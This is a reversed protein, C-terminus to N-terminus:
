PDLRVPQGLVQRLWVRRTAAWEQAAAAQYDPNYKFFAYSLLIDDTSEYGAVWGKGKTYTYIIKQNPGM